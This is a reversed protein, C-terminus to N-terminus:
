TYTYKKIRKGKKPKTFVPESKQGTRTVNYPYLEGCNKCAYVEIPQLYGCCSCCGIGLAYMAETTNYVGSGDYQLLRGATMGTLEAIIKHQKIGM